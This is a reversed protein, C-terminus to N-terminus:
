MQLELLNLPLFSVIFSLYFRCEIDSNCLIAKLLQSLFINILQLLKEVLNKKIRRHLDNM